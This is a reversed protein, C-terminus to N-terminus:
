INSSISSPNLASRRGSEVAKKINRGHTSAAGLYLLWRLDFPDQKPGLVLGHLTLDPIVVDRM